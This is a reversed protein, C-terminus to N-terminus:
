GHAWVRNAQALGCTARIVPDNCTAIRADHSFARDRLNLYKLAAWGDSEWL